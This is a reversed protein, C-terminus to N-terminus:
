AGAVSDCLQILRDYEDMTIEKLTDQVMQFKDETTDIRGVYDETTQLNFSHTLCVRAVEDYGLPMMNFIISIAHIILIICM